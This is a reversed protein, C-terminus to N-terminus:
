NNSTQKSKAQTLQVDLAMDLNVSLSKGKKIRFDGFSKTLTDNTVTVKTSAKQKPKTFPVHDLLCYGNDDTVNSIDTGNVTVIANGLPKAGNFVTVRIQSSSHVPKLKRYNIYDNYYNLTAPNNKFNLAMGDAQETLLEVCSRLLQQIQENIGKRNVIADNVHALTDKLLTCSQQWQQVLAATINYDATLAPVLPTVIDIKGQIYPVIDEFSMRSLQNRSTFMADVLFKDKKNLAYSYVSHMIAASMEVLTKKAARKQSAYGTITEKAIVKLNDISQLNSKIINMIALWAKMSQTTGINAAAFVFAILSRLMKVTAVGFKSKSNDKM